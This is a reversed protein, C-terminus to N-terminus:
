LGSAIATNFGARVETHGPTSLVQVYRDGFYVKDGHNLSVDAKARSASSIASLCEAKGSVNVKDKLAKTGSKNFQL